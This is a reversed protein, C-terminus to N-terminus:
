DKALVRFFRMFTPGDGRRYENILLLPWESPVVQREKFVLFTPRIRASEILEEPVEGVPWYAKITVNHNTGLYLELAHPFLGFTGETGIFVPGNKSEKELFSVIESIGYGSPWDTLFQKRDASPIAAQIPQFVIQYDFLLLQSSIIIAAIALIAKNKSGTVKESIYLTLMVVLPTLMFLLFRPYIVKGFFALAAFPIVFWSLFFIGDRWDKLVLWFAAILVLLVLPITL